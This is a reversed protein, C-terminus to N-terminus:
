ANGRRTLRDPGGHAAWSDGAKLCPSLDVIFVKAGELTDFYETWDGEDSVLYKIDSDEVPNESAFQYEDLRGNDDMNLGIDDTSHPTNALCPRTERTSQNKDFSGM